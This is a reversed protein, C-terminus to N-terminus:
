SLRVGTLVRGPMKDAIMSLQVVRLQATRQYSLLVNAVDSAMFLRM